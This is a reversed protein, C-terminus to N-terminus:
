TDVVLAVWDETYDMVTWSLETEEAIYTHVPYSCRVIRLAWNTPAGTGPGIVFVFAVVPGCSTAYVPISALLLLAASIRNKLNRLTLMATLLPLLGIAFIGVCLCFRLPLLM